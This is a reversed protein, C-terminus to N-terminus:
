DIEMFVLILGSVVVGHGLTTTNGHKQLFRWGLLLDPDVLQRTARKGQLEDHRQSGSLGASVRDSRGPAHRGSVCDCSM